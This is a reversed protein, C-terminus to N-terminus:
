CEINPFLATGRISVNVKVGSVGGTAYGMPQEM